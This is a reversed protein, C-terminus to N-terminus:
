RLFFSPITIQTRTHPRQIRIIFKFGLFILIGSSPWINDPNLRIITGLIDLNSVCVDSLLDYSSMQTNWKLFEYSISVHVGLEAKMDRM